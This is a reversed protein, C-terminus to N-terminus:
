VVFMLLREMEGITVCDMGHKSAYDARNEKVGTIYGKTNKQSDLVTVIVVPPTGSPISEGGGLLRSLIFLLAAIGCM